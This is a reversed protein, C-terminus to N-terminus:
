CKKSLIASETKSISSKANPYNCVLYYYITDIIALHAIRSNLGFITYNTEDAITNLIYDSVKYIPSKGYNTICVTKAGNEKCIKLAHVIDKSSGSHSIGIALTEPTSHSSVIAQMHNDTYSQANLGLRILKHAADNAISSSNGLGFILINKASIIASCVDELVTSNIIKRTKELSCYIDDCVKEFIDFPSDGKNIDSRIPSVTIEQAVAIKLQQYGDMKLKKAFRTITAESASCEKALETISLPILREPTNLLFDAVKQEATGLTNYIIKVDLALKNM